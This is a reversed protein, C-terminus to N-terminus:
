ARAAASDFRFDRWRGTGLWRLFKSKEHVAVGVEKVSAAKFVSSVM